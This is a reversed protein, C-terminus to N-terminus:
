KASREIRLARRVSRCGVPHMRPQKAGKQSRSGKSATRPGTPWEDARKGSFARKPFGVDNQIIISAAVNTSDNLPFPGDPM